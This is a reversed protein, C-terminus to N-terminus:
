TPDGTEIKIAEFDEGSMVACAAGPTLIVFTWTGTEPNALIMVPADNEAMAAMVPVEGYQRELFEAMEKPPACTGQAAAPFAFAVLVASLLAVRTM